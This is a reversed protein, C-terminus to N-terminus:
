TIDIGAIRFIRGGQAPILTRIVGSDSDAKSRFPHGNEDPTYVQSLDFTSSSYIAGIGECDVLVVRGITLSFLHQKLSYQIFTM